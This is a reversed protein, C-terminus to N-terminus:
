YDYATTKLPKHATITHKHRFLEFESSQPKISIHM